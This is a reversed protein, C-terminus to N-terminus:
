HDSCMERLAERVEPPIRQAITLGRGPYRKCHWRPYPNDPNNRFGPMICSHGPLPLCDGDDNIIECQIPAREKSVLHTLFRRESKPKTPRVPNGGFYKLM